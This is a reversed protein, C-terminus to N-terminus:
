QDTLQVFNIKVLNSDCSDYTKFYIKESMPVNSQDLLQVYVEEDSATPTDSIKIEYGGDGYDPANGSLSLGTIEQGGLTGGAEVLIGNVPIGNMDFIQGAVGLWNCGADTHVTNIEYIPSGDQKGFSVGSEPDGTPFPTSEVTPLPTDTPSPTFTPTISPM